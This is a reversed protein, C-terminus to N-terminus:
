RHRSRPLAVRALRVESRDEAGATWAVLARDAGAAIVQPYVGNEGGPITARRPDDGGAPLWAVGIARAGDDTADYAAVAGGGPLAAVAGHVSPLSNGTVLPLVAAPASDGAVAYYLGTRGPSGTYWVVHRRGDAGVSLGPGNHPCGPYEWGDEHVRVPEGPAPAIAATVVDRVNGRFHQRWAAVVSGDRERALTIRCCPCAAGWVPTNSGWTRGFDSSSALYVMADAETTSDQATASPDHHHGVPRGSTREDLWAAVLGSEGAWAAGQFNHGVPAATTDDNITIPPLWTRGADLSRAVRIASAPWRRTAVPVDRPWVVALRGGPGAVLRPSAEGHPHVESTDTTIRVAPSWHDGRDRSRSFYLHWSEGDGGVWTLLLDGTAPDAALSPDASSRMGASPVDLLREALPAEGGCGGTALTALLAAAPALGRRRRLPILSGM